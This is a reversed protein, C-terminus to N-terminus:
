PEGVALLQRLGLMLQGLNADTPARVAARLSPSLAAVLSGHAYRTALVLPAGLALEGGARVVAGLLIDVLEALEALEDRQASRAYGYLPEGRGDTLVLAETDDLALLASLAAENWGRVGRPRSEAPAARGTENADAVEGLLAHTM